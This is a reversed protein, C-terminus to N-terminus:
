GEIEHHEDIDVREKNRFVALALALGVVAEAAGLVLVLLLPESSGYLATRFLDPGAALLVAAIAGAVPGAVRAGLRAALALAVVACARMSALWLLPAAGGLPTLPAVALVPLAKFAPGGATSLDGRPLERAWVMWAWADYGLMRAVLLSGAGLAAAM